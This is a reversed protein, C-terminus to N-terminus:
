KKPKEAKPKDEVVEFKEKYQKILEENKTEYIVGENTKFKM